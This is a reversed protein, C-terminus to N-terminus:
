ISESSSVKELQQLKFPALINVRSKHFHFLFNFTSVSRSNEYVTIYLGQRWSM